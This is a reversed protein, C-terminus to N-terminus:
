QEARMIRFWYTPSYDRDMQAHLAEYLDRNWAPSCDFFVQAVTPSPGGPQQVEKAMSLFESVCGEGCHYAWIAWDRGGYRQEMGALYAAAAPIAKGPEM